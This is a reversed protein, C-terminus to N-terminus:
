RGAERGRVRLVGPELRLEPHTTLRDGARVYQDVRDFIPGLSLIVGDLVPNTEDVYTVKPPEFTVVLRAQRNLPKPGSLTQSLRKAVAVVHGRKIGYRTELEAMVAVFILEQARFERAVRAGKSSRQPLTLDLLGRMQDRTYDTVRCLDTITLQSSVM